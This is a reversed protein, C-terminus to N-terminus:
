HKLCSIFIYTYKQPVEAVYTQFATPLPHFQTSSCIATLFTCNEFFFNYPFIKMESTDEFVYFKGLSSLQYKDIKITLIETSMKMVVQSHESSLGKYKLTCVDYM